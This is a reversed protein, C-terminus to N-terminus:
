VWVTVHCFCKWNYIISQFILITRVAFLRGGMERAEWWSADVPLFARKPSKWRLPAPLTSSYSRGCERIRKLERPQMTLNLVSEDGFYTDQGPWHLRCCSWRLLFQFVICKQRKEGKDVRLAVQQRRARQKIRQTQRNTVQNELSIAFLNAKFLSITTPEGFGFVSATMRTLSALFCVFFPSIVDASFSLSNNRCYHFSFDILSPVSNLKTRCPHHSSAVGLELTATLM